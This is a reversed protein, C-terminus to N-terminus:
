PLVPDGVWQAFGPILGADEHIPTPNTEVTGRCSMRQKKKKKKKKKKPWVQLMHFYGPWSNFGLQLQQRHQLQPLAPDKVWQQKALTQVPVGYLM